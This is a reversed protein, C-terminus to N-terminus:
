DAHLLLGVDFGSSAPPTSASGIRASSAIPGVLATRPVRNVVHSRM